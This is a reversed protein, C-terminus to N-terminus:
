MGGLMLTTAIATDVTAYTSSDLSGDGKVFQTSTGGTTVFKIATVNGDKDVKALVTAGSNQWQQLDATQSAQGRVAVVINGAGNPQFTNRAGSIFSTAGGAIGFATSLQGFQNVTVAYSTGTQAFSAINATSGNPTSVTLPVTGTATPAFTNAATFTNAAALVAV